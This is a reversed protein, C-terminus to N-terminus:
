DFPVIEGGSRTTLFALTRVEISSRLFRVSGDAMLANSGSTHFSYVENDNSCNMACPGGNTRGDAGAGDIIFGKLHSAWVGGTTFPRDATSSWPVPPPLHDVRQRQQWLQPRNACETVLITNSTGDTVELVRVPEFGLVGTRDSPPIGLSNGLATGIGGINTYDTPAGYLFFRPTASTFRTYEFSLRDPEAMPCLLIKIQTKVAVENAPDDWHLNPNYARYAAEQEFYPLVKTMWSGRPPSSGTPTTPFTSQPPWSGNASEYNHLALGIQKVNNQCQTRAAVERAKQVAPLLLALLVAIIAIVVLLEILTFASPHRSPHALRVLVSGKRGARAL